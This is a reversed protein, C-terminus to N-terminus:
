SADNWSEPSDTEGRRISLLTVNLDRMAALLGHLAAQDIVWGRLITEDPETVILQMDGFWHTAYACLLCGQVRIEYWAPQDRREM